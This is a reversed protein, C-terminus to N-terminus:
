HTVILVRGCCRPFTMCLYHLSRPKSILSWMTPSLWDMGFIVDFDVMDLVIFDDRTDYGKISVLYSRLVQDVVLSEGVSTSVHVPEILSEFRM